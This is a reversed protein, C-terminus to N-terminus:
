RWFGLWDGVAGAGGVPRWGAALAGGVLRGSLQGVEHWSNTLMKGVHQWDKVTILSVM